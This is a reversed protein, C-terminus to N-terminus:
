IYVRIKLNCRLVLLYEWFSNRFYLELQDCQSRGVRGLYGKNVRVNSVFYFGFKLFYCYSKMFWVQKM